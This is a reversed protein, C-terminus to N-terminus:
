GANPIKAYKFLQSNSLKIYGSVYTKASGSPKTQVQLLRTNGKAYVGRIQMQTGKKVTVSKKLNVGSYVKVNRLIPSYDILHGDGDYFFSYAVTPNNYATLKGTASCKLTVFHSLVGTITTMCSGGVVIDDGIVYALGANAHTVGKGKMIYPNGYCDLVTTVSHAFEPDTAGDVAKVKFLRDLGGGISEGCYGYAHIFLCGNPLKLLELKLSSEDMEDPLGVKEVNDICLAANITGDEYIGYGLRIEELAGDSDVDYSIGKTSTEAGSVSEIIQAMADNEDPYIEYEWPQASAVGGFLGLALTCAAAFVGLKRSM